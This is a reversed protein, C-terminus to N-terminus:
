NLGTPHASADVMLRWGWQEQRTSCCQGLCWRYLLAGGSRHSPGPAPVSNRLSYPPPGSEGSEWDVDLVFVRHGRREFQTALERAAEPRDSQATPLFWVLDYRARDTPIEAALTEKATAEALEPERARTQTTIVLSDHLESM